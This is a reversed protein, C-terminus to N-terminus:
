KGLVCPECFSDNKGTLTIGADNCAAEVVSKSAHMLRRHMTRYNISALVAQSPTKARSVEGGVASPTGHILYVNGTREMECVVQKSPEHYLTNNEQNWYIGSDLLMATSVINAPSKPNYLAQTLELTVKRGDSLTTEFAVVGIHTAVTFKGDACLYPKARALPHLETFWELENFITDAAATTTSTTGFQQFDPKMTMFNTSMFFNSRQASSSPNSVGSNQRIPGTTSSAAAAATAAEAKKKIREAKFKFSDPAQEPNCGWCVEVNKPKHGNCDLCHVLNRNILKTCVSCNFKAGADTALTSTSSSQTKGQSQQAKDVKVMANAM